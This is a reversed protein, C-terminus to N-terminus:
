TADSGDRRQNVRRNLERILDSRFEKAEAQDLAEEVITYAESCVGSGILHDVLIHRDAFNRPSEYFDAVM